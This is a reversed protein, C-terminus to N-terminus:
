VVTVLGHSPRNQHLAARAQRWAELQALRRFTKAAAEAGAAVWHSAQVFRLDM